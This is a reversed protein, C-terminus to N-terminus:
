SMKSELSHWHKNRESHVWHNGDNQDVDGAHQETPSRSAELKWRYFDKYERLKVRLDYQVRRGEDREGSRFTNKRKSLLVKLDSTIWPKNNPFCCVAWALLTTHECFKIYETICETM